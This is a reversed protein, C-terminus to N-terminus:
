WSYTAGRGQGWLACLITNWGILPAPALNFSGHYQALIVMWDDLQKWLIQWELLEWCFKGGLKISIPVDGLFVPKVHTLITNPQTVSFGTYNTEATKDPKVQHWIWSLLLTLMALTLCQYVSESKSKFYRNSWFLCPFIIIVAKM